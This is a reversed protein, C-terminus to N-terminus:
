MAYGHACYEIANVNKKDFDGSRIHNMEHEYVELQKEYSLNADIFITYSDDINHCVSGPVGLANELIVVNVDFGEYYL